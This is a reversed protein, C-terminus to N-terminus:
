GGTTRGPNVCDIVTGNVTEGGVFGIDCRRDDERDKESTYEIPLYGRVKFVPVM